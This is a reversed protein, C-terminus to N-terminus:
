KKEPKKKEAKAEPVGAYKKRYEAIEKAEIKKFLPEPKGIARGAKVREKADEWDRVPKAGLYGRMKESTSPLFPALLVSLASAVNLSVYIITNSREKNKWPAEAQLYQNGTRALGMVEELASKLEIDGLHKSVKEFATDIALLASKDAATLEGPTPVKGGFSNQTFVLTRQLFNGLTDNLETNIKAQFDEWSFNADKKETLISLLYYRWYDAPYLQNADPVTLGVGRSKSFKEGGEWNLFEYSAVMWPLVYNDGAAILMGPFFMTHFAINDKGIFHVLRTKSDHWWSGKGLQETFTVYGLPADFWSYFVGTSGAEPIPVGWKIDRQIDIDELGEKIWSLAFNRSSPFWHTQAGVFKYLKDQLKSLAFFVHEEKRVHPTTGCITCRPKILETPRLVKGCSECQDGKAQEFGCHPCTGEVFRDPLFRQDRDCYLQEINKKYSYGNKKVSEYFSQVLRTHAPDSTRSFIDPKCDMRDFAERDIAYYKDTLEKPTIGQKLAAIETTTGYEDTGCIYVVENGQLKLFRSYVDAPLLTSILHGLHPVNNVYPLAATVIYRFSDGNATYYLAGSIFFM